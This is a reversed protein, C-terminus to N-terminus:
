GEVFTTDSGIHSLVVGEIFNVGEGWAGNYLDAEEQGVPINEQVSLVQDSLSDYVPNQAKEAPLRWLFLAAAVRRAAVPM